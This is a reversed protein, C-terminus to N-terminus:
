RSHYTPHQVLEYILGRVREDLQAQSSGDFPSVTVNGSSDRTTNLYEVLNAHDQTTLQVDLLASLTDVVADATREAVPPLLNAVNIGVKAQDSTDNVCVQVVNIREVM